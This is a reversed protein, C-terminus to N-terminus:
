HCCSIAERPGVGPLVNPSLNAIFGQYPLHRPFKGLQSFSGNLGRIKPSHVHVHHLNKARPNCLDVLEQAQFNGSVVGHGRLHYYSHQLIHSVYPLSGQAVGERQAPQGSGFSGLHSGLYSELQASFVRHFHKM